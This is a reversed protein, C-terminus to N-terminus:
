VDFPKATLEARRPMIALWYKEFSYTKNVMQVRQQRFRIFQLCRKSFNLVFQCATLRWCAYQLWLFTINFSFIFCLLLDGREFGSLGSGVIYSPYIINSKVPALGRDHSQASCTAGPLQWANTKCNNCCIEGIWRPIYVRVLYVGVAKSWSCLPGILRVETLAWGLDAIEFGDIQKGYSQIKLSRLARSYGHSITEAFWPLSHLRVIFSHCNVEGTAIADATLVACIGAGIQVRICSQNSHWNLSVNV